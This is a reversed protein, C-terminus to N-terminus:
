PQDVSVIRVGPQNLREIERHNHREIDMLIHCCRAGSRCKFIAWRNM